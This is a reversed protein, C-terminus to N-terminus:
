MIHVHVVRVAQKDVHTGYVLLTKAKKDHVVSTCDALCASRSSAALRRAHPITAAQLRVSYIEAVTLVHLM